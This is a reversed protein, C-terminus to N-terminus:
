PGQNEIDRTGPSHTRIPLPDTAAVPPVYLGMAIEKELDQQSSTRYYIWIPTRRDATEDPMSLLRDPYREWLILHTTLVQKRNMLEHYARVDCVACLVMAVVNAAVLSVFWRSSREIREPAYLRLVALYELSFLLLGYMMYRGEVAGVGHSRYRTITVGAATVLCFLAGGFTGSDVRMWGRRALVVFGVVLVLGTVAASVHEGTAAGLFIFPFSFVSKVAAWGSLQAGVMYAHYHYAYLLALLVTASGALVAEVYRRAYLLLFICVAAAFMGNGSTGMALVLFVMGWVFSGSWTATMFFIAALSLPLIAMNQLGSMAWNVTEVYCLSLYVYCPLSLLWIRQSLPRGSRRLFFWLLVVVAPLSLDGLYSLVRYNEHGTLQYEIAVIGHLFMLKYQVHQSTLIWWIRAWFGHLTVYRELFEGVAGYDDEIAINVATRGAIAALAVVPLLLNCIGLAVRLRSARSGHSTEETVANPM